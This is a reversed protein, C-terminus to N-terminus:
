VDEGQLAERDRGKRAYDEEVQSHHCKENRSGEPVRHPNFLPFSLAKSSAHTCFVGSDEALTTKYVFLLLCKRTGLLTDFDIANIDFSFGISILKFRLFAQTLTLLLLLRLFM